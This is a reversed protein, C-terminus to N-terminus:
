FCSEYQKKWEPWSEIEKKAHGYLEKNEKRKKEIREAKNWLEIDKPPTYIEIM